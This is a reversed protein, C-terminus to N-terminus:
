VIPITASVIRCNDGTCPDDICKSDDKTPKRQRTDETDVNPSSCVALAITIIQKELVALSPGELRAIERGSTLFVFTPMSKINYQKSLEDEEDIDVELGVVVGQQKDLAAVFHPHIRKCPGCWDATFKLVVAKGSLVEERLEFPVDGKRAVDSLFTDTPTIAYKM